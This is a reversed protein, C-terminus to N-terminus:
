SQGSISPELVYPGSHRVKEFRTKPKESSDYAVQLLILWFTWSVGSASPVEIANYAPSTSFNNM